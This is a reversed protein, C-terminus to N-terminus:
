ADLQYAEEYVEIAQDPDHLKQEYVRALKLLTKLREDDDATVEAKDRLVDVLDIWDGAQDYLQELATLADASEPEVELLQNYAEIAERSRELVDWELQGIREWLEARRNPDAYRAQTRLNDTLAEVDGVSEYLEELARLAQQDSEDIELVKEYAEIAAEPDELQRKTLDGIRRYLPAAAFSDAREAAEDFAEVVRGIEDLQHGLTEFRDRREEGEPDLVVAQETMEFGAEQKGLHGVYLNALEDLLDLRQYRDDSERLRVTLVDVLRKRNQEERYVPELAEAVNLRLASRDGSAKILEAELEELAEIVDPDRPSADLLDTLLQQAGSYDDLHRARLRALRLRLRQQRDADLAHELQDVYLDELDFWNERDEYLMELASVAEEDSPDVELIERYLGTARAPYDLTQDCLVAAEKFLDVARGESDAFKARKELIDVLPEHRELRRYLNELAEAVGADDSEWRFLLELADVAEALDGLRDRRIRAVRYLLRQRAGTAEQESAPTESAFLAQVTEWRDLDDALDELEDWVTEREPDLEFLRSACEFAEEADGLELRYVSLLEELIDEKEYDDDTVALRVELAEALEEDRGEERFLSELLLAADRAHDPEDFLTRVAEIAGEREPDAELVERYYYLAEGLDALHKRYIEALEFQAELRRDDEDAALLGLERQLLELVRDWSEDDRHMQKLGRVAPLFEPQVELIEEYAERASERDELHKWQAEALRALVDVLETRDAGAERRIEVLRELTEVLADADGTADYQDALADLAELDEPEHDVVARWHDIADEPRDLEEGEIRGIRRMFAVRLDPDELDEAIADTLEVFTTYDEARGALQEARDLASERGPALQLSQIQYNLADGHVEREEAIASLRDLVERRREDSDAEELVIALLESERELDRSERYWEALQAAVEARRDTVELLSELSRVVRDRDDLQDAAVEAMARYLPAAEQGDREEAAGELKGYLQEYAGRDGYLARVDALRGDAVYLEALRDAVARDDPAARAVKEWLEIAKDAEDFHEDHLTAAEKLAQLRQRNDTLLRAKRELTELLEGWDERRRYVEELEELAELNETDLEIIEELIPIARDNDRLKDRVLKLMDYLRQLRETGEYLELEERRLEYLAEYDRKSEYVSVLRRRVDDREPAVELARELYEVARSVHKLEEELVDAAEVYCDVARDVNDREAHWDAREELLGVLDNWRRGEELMDRLREFAGVNDPQLEVLRQLTNIAMVTHGIEDEYLDVMRMLLDARRDVTEEGQDELREIEDKLFDVLGNWKENDEYLRQLEIRADHDDTERLYNKWVDIAKEPSEMQKEAVTARRRVLRRREDPDDADQQGSKLHSFLRRWQENEAYYEEYFAGVDPHTNDLLKLRKFYYEAQEFDGIEKWYIRALEGMLEAEGEKKRLYKLTTDIKDALEEYRGEERLRDRIVTFASLYRPEDEWAELAEEFTGDFPDVTEYISEPEREAPRTGEIAGDDTPDVESAEREEGPERDVVPDPQQETAAEEIGLAIEGGDAAMPREAEEEDPPQEDLCREFLALVDGNTPDMEAARRVLVKGREPYGGDRKLELRAGTSLFEAAIGPEDERLADKAMEVAERIGEETTTESEYLDETIEAVAHGKGLALAERVLEIAVDMNGLRDGHVHAKRVLIDARERDTEAVQQELEYLKLVLDDNGEKRYLHRAKALSATNTTDAVFASRYAQKAAGADELDRAYVDGLLTQIESVDADDEAVEVLSELREVLESAGVEGDFADSHDGYLAVLGEWDNAEILTRERERFGEIDGIDASRDTESVSTQEGM